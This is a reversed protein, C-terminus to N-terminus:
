PLAPVAAIAFMDRPELSGSRATLGAADFPKQLFAAERELRWPSRADDVYGFTALRSGPRAKQLRVTDRRRARIWMASLRMPGKHRKSIEPGGAM